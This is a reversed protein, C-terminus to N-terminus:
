WGALSWWRPSMMDSGRAGDFRFAQAGEDSDAIATLNEELTGSLSVWDSGPNGDRSEGFFKSEVVIREADGEILHDIAGDKGPAFYPRVYRGAVMGSFFGNSLGEHVFKQFDDGDKARPAQRRDFRPIEAPM